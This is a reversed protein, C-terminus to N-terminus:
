GNHAALVAQLAPDNVLATDGNQVGWSYAMDMVPSPLLSAWTALLKEEQAASPVLYPDGTDSVWKGAGFAQYVPVLASKPYGASVAANVARGIWAWHCGSNLRCPYPDLGYLDLAGLYAPSYSPAATATLVDLITFTRWQPDVAHVFATEARLNKGPCWSPLPEDVLYFGFVRPDGRYADVAARFGSTAGNCTGLWVLGQLGAPLGDLAKKSSVDALNFGDAYTAASNANPAYHLRSQASALLVIAVYILLGAGALVVAYLLVTEAWRWRNM